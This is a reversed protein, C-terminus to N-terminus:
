DSCSIENLDNSRGPSAESISRACATTTAGHAREFCRAHAIQCKRFCRLGREDANSMTSGGHDKFVLSRGDQNRRLGGPIPRASTTARPTSTLACTLEASAATSMM